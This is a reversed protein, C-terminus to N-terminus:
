FLGNVCLVCLAASFASFIWLRIEKDAYVLDSKSRGVNLGRNGNRRLRQRFLEVDHIYLRAYHDESSVDLRNWFRPPLKINVTFDVEARDSLFAVVDDRYTVPRSIESDTAGSVGLERILQELEHALLAAAVVREDVRHTV